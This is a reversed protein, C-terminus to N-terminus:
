TGLATLGIEFELLSLPKTQWSSSPERLSISVGYHRASPQCSGQRHHTKLSWICSPDLYAAKGTSVSGATASRIIFTRYSPAWTSFRDKIPEGSTYKSCSLCFRETGFFCFCMTFFRCEFVEKLSITLILDEFAHPEDFEDALRVEPLRVCDLKKRCFASFAPLLSTFHM